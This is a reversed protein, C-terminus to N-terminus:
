GRRSKHLEVARAGYRNRAARVRCSKAHFIWGAVNSGERLFSATEAFYGSSFPSVIDAREFLDPHNCVKRFQMVLNMLSASDDDGITAKEILDM